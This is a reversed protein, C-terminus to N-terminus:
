NFEKRDAYNELPGRGYYKIHNFDEPMQLQMGFRFMNSIKASKDAEMKETVKVSGTNSITYTLYFKASVSPMDYIAKVVVQNNEISDKLSKLKLEPNKWVIYKRQLSAGM